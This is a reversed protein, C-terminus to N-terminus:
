DHSPQCPLCPAPNTLPAAAHPVRLWRSQRAAYSSRSSKMRPRSRKPRRESPAVIRPAAKSLPRGSKSVPAAWRRAPFRASALSEYLSLPPGISTCVQRRRHRWAKHLHRAVSAVEQHATAPLSALAQDAPQPAERWLTALHTPTAAAQVAASLRRLRLVSHPWGAFCCHTVRLTKVTSHSKWRCNARRM